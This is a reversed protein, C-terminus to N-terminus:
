QKEYITPGVYKLNHNINSLSESHGIFLWGGPHLQDAFRNVLREKTERDFYIMVNRCFIFDLPTTVPWKEMLNIKKFIILKRLNPRIQYLKQAHDHQPLFYKNQIAPSLDAVREQPYCGLSATSLVQTSIDSALLKINARHINPLAEAATIAISYPEEGTSCGASWARIRPAGKRETLSPIVTDRLFDFHHKERFFSTLNTSIRNVMETLKEGSNDNLVIDLYNAYSSCGHKQLLRILRSRVMEKKDSSLNIGCHDYITKGIQQFEKDSFNPQEVKTLM